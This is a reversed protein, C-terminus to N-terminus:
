EAGCRPDLRGGRSCAILQGGNKGLSTSLVASHCRTSPGSSRPGGPLTLDITDVTVLEGRAPFVGTVLGAASGDSAFDGYIISATQYGHSRGRLNRNRGIRPRQHANVHRSLPGDGFSDALV